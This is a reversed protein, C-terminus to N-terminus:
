LLVQWAYEQRAEFIQRAHLASKRNSLTPVCLLGVKFSCMVENPQRPIYGPASMM